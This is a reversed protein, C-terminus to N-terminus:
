RGKKSDFEIKMPTAPVSHVKDWIAKQVDNTPQPAWGEEVALKYPKMLAPTVGFKEMYPNMRITVDVPIHENPIVDLDTVKPMPGVLSIAYNSSMGGCLMAFVRSLSKKTRAEFFAPKDSYIKAINCYAWRDEPAVVSRPLNPDDIVYITMEGYVTPKAADFAGQRLEIRFHTERALYDAAASIWDSSARKQADVVTVVGKQTGPKAIKEGGKIIQLKKQAPTLEAKAAVGPEEAIASVTCTLVALTFLIKKM